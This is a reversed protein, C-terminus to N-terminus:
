TIVYLISKNEIVKFYFYMSVVTTAMFIGDFPICHSMRIYGTPAVPIVWKDCYIPSCPKIDPSIMVNHEQINTLFM